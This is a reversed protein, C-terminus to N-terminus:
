ECRSMVLRDEEIALSTGFTKSQAILDNVTDVEDAPRRLITENGPTRRVLHLAVEAIGNTDIKINAFYGIWNLHAASHGLNFSLNCAGYLIPKGQYLEVGLAFHPGHGLVADAGADIAAHAIEVQYDLIDTKYGWHHSAVLFDVDESLAAIEQCYATLQQPDTWTVVEPPLGPRNPALDDQLPRYATHGKLIAVGPSEDTAQQNKPWYASTRQIFGYRVGKNIVIAPEYAASRNAGAGTHGIGLADLCALSAIIADEGYTVNNACGVADFGALELANAAIPPAYFGERKSPDHGPKDYFCCELNGFVVDAARTIESISAFPVSPDTVGTFNMDGAIILTQTLEVVELGEQNFSDYPV